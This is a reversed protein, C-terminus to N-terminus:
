MGIRDDSNCVYLENSVHHFGFSIWSVLLIELFNREKSFNHQLNKYKINIINYFVSWLCIANILLKGHCWTSFCFSLFCLVPLCFYIFFTIENTHFHSIFTENLFYPPIPNLLYRYRNCIGNKFVERTYELDQWYIAVKSDM